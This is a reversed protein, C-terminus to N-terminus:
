KGDENEEELIGDLEARFQALDKFVIGRMRLKEAAEVNERKDDIFIVEEPRRGLEGLAFEYFERNPKRLGVKASLFIKEPEFVEELQWFDKNAEDFYDGFNTLMALEFRDKLSRVYAKMEPKVKYSSLHVRKIDDHELNTNLQKQMLRYFEATTIKGEDLDLAIYDQNPKLDKEDVGFLEALNKYTGEADNTTFVGNNDFLLTKIM